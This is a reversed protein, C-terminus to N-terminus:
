WTNPGAPEISWVFPTLSTFPYNQDQLNDPNASVHWPYHVNKIIFKDGGVEQIHFQAHPGPHKSSSACAIPTGEDSSNDFVAVNFDDKKVNFIRCTRGDWSM